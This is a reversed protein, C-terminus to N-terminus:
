LPEFPRHRPHMSNKGSRVPHLGGTKTFSFTQVTWFTVCVNRRAGRRLLSHSVAPSLWISDFHEEFGGTKPRGFLVSDDFVGSSLLPGMTTRACVFCSFCM